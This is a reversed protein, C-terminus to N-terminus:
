GTASCHLGKGGFMAPTTPMDLRQRAQLAHADLQGASSGRVPAPHRAAEGAPACPPTCPAKPGHLTGPLLASVLMFPPMSDGGWGSKGEVLQQRAVVPATSRKGERRLGCVKPHQSHLMELQALSPFVFATQLEDSPQQLADALIDLDEPNMATVVGTPFRSGYRGARGAVQCAPNLPTPLCCHTLHVSTRTHPLCSKVAFSRKCVNLQLQHIVPHCSAPRMAVQM